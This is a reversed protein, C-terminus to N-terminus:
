VPCLAQEITAAGCRVDRTSKRRVYMKHVIGQVSLDANDRSLGQISLHGRSPSLGGETLFGTICEGRCRGSDRDRGDEGGAAAAAGGTKAAAAAAAAAVRIMKNDDKGRGDNIEKEEEAGNEKERQNREDGRCVEM